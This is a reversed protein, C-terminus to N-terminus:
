YRLVKVTKLRQGNRELAGIYMGRPLDDNIQITGLVEELELRRIERGKLDLLSFTGSDLDGLDYRINFNGESPNPFAQLRIADTIYLPLSATTQDEVRFLDFGGEVINPGMNDAVSIHFQVSDTPLLFDTMRVYSRTWFNNALDRRVFVTKRANGNDIEVVLSDRFSNGQGEDLCVLWWDFYIWPNNYSSLDMIPSSLTVKGNDVDDTTANGNGNGTVFCSAGWDDQVDADPNALQQWQYTPLPVERVWQGNAASGSVTWGLDFGFNDYYGPSLKIVLNNNLSDVPIVLTKFNYGWKALAFEYSGPLFGPDAVEGNSNSVYSFVNGITDAQIQVGAIPNGTISDQVQITIGVGPVPTLQPNWIAVQGPTLLLTTDLPFYGFKTARVTYMGSDALGTAYNGSTNSMETASVTLIELQANSLPFTTNIDTVQGELYSAQTGNFSFVFLGEQVDTGLVLGSPLFPYVGWMGEFYPQTFLTSTDYNGVEVLNGPRHADVIQLGDQYYSNFLFGNHYTTNHPVIGLSDGNKTRIGDKYEVNAPDSVDWAYIYGYPTEDATFCITGTDDLWSSHTVPNVYSKIGLTSISSKITVDLISLQGANIEAAYARNNRVYVDHVYNTFYSGAPSPNWPDQNLDMIVMGPNVNFSNGCMYLFGLEDVWLNHTTTIGILTTDKYNVSNPLDGLDIIGLGGGTENSVYAFNEFTKIDRWASTAGPLFFAEVPNAPNSLDVISVGTTTGVLAWENGSSDVYAWVDNLDQIYSLQGVKEVNLSDTQASLQLALLFLFLTFISKMQRFNCLSVPGRFLAVLSDKFFM